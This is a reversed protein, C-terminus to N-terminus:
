FEVEDMPNTAWDYVGEVLSADPEGNDEFEFVANM